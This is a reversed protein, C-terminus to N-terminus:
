RRAERPAFCARLFRSLAQMLKQERELFTVRPIGAQRAAEAQSRRERFRLRYVEALPERLGPLVELEFRALAQELRRAQDRDLLSAEEEVPPLKGELSRPDDLLTFRRERRLADIARHRAITSLWAGLDGGQFQRRVSEREVLRVFVEHVVCEALAGRCYCSVAREVAAAHARYIAALTEQEGAYFRELDIAQSSM